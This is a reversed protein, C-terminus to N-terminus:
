LYKDYNNGDNIEILSSDVNKEIELGANEETLENLVNIENIFEKELFLFSVIKRIKFCKKLSVERNTIM